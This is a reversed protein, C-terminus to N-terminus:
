KPGVHPHREGVCIDSPLKIGYLCLKKRRLNSKGLAFFFLVSLSFEEQIASLNFNATDNQSLIFLVVSIIVYLLMTDTINKRIWIIDWVFVHM